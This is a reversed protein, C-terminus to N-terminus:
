RLTETFGLKTADLAGRLPALHREADTREFRLFIGSVFTRMLPRHAEDSLQLLADTFLAETAADVHQGVVVAHSPIGSQEAVVRTAALAEDYLQRPVDGAIVTADVQGSRLAELGQAYGGAYRVEGFFTAPDVGDAGPTLLRQAVLKALPFVYGSTSLRSPFAVRRGRLDALTRVDSEPKVIWYSAYSPAELREGGAFVERVEGLVVRAGARDAALRAPWAGVFAADAHRFRLAEITGAYLTPVHIEVDFDPMRAELFEELRASQEALKEPVQTPQIALTFTRKTAAAATESSCGALPALALVTALSIRAATSSM